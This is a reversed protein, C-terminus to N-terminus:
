EPVDRSGKQPGTTTTNEAHRNAGNGTGNQSFFAASLGTVDANKRFRAKKGSHNSCIAGDRVLDLATPPTM